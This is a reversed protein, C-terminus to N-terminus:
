KLSDNQTSEIVNSIFEKLNRLISSEPIQSEKTQGQQVKQYDISEPSKGKEVTIGKEGLLDISNITFKADQSIKVEKDFQIEVVIKSNTQLELDKVFGVKLGDIIVPSQKKLGSVDEFEIKLKSNDECGITLILFVFSFLRFMNRRVVIM